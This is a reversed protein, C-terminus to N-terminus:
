TSRIRFPSVSSSRGTCCSVFNSSTMLRLVALARSREMGGAESARASSTISHLQFLLNRLHMKSRRRPDTAFPKTRFFPPPQAVEFRWPQPPIPPKVAASATRASPDCTVMKSCAPSSRSIAAPIEIWAFAASRNCRIPRVSLDLRYPRRNGAELQPCRKTFQDVARRAGRRTDLAVINMTRFKQFQQGVCLRVAREVRTVAQTLDSFCITPHFQGERMTCGNFRIEHNSTVRFNFPRIDNSM